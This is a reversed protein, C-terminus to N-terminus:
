IIKTGQKELVTQVKRAESDQEFNRGQQRPDRMVQVVDSAAVLSPLVLAAAAAALVLHCCIYVVLGNRRLSYM